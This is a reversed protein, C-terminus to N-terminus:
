YKSRKTERLTQRKKVSLMTIQTILQSKLTKNGPMIMPEVMRATMMMKVATSTKLACALRM